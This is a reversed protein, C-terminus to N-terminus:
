TSCIARSVAQMVVAGATQKSSFICRWHSLWIRLWMFHWKRRDLPRRGVPFSWWCSCTVGPESRDLIVQFSQIENKRNTAQSPLAVLRSAVLRSVHCLSSHVNKIALDPLAFSLFFVIYALFSIFVIIFDCFHMSVYFTTRSPQGGSVTLPM